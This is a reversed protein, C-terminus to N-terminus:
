LALDFSVAGLEAGARALTFTVRWGGAMSLEVNGAYEGADDYAPPAPTDAGHGMAPMDASVQVAADAVPAYSMAGTQEHVTLVYANDGLTAERSDGQGESFSLTVLYSAGDAAELTIARDSVAVPLDTFVVLHEEGNATVSVRNSWSATASSAMPLVVSALFRGDDATVSTGDRTPCGHTVGPMTMQWAQTVLADAVPTASAEDQVALAITNRGARLSTAGRVLLEVSVAGDTATAISTHGDDVPPAELCACTTLAAAVAVWRFRLEGRAM